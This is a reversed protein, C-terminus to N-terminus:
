QGTGSRRLGRRGGRGLQHRAIIPNIRDLWEDVAALYEPDDTRAKGPQNVLWGPFGGRSLEANVYPGARTIVYLGEEQAMTLLRDIDRIGSFDYVGKKPSHFGWDIYIAVTNFGSAKMKQLIDRWLDPSPLRFPHFESSWILTPKGDIRLSRSDFTVRPVETAPAVQPAAVGALLLAATLSM